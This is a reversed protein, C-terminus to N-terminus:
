ASSDGPAAPPGRPRVPDPFDRYLATQLGQVKTFVAAHLKHADPKRAAMVNFAADLQALDKVELTAWFEGLSAPGLGLKRRALRAAEVLGEEKLHAALADFADAFDLDRTGPKLDFWLEYRDM